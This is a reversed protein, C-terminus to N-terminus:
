ARFAYVKALTDYASSPDMKHVLPRGGKLRSMYNVMKQTPRARMAGSFFRLPNVAAQIVGDVEERLIHFM